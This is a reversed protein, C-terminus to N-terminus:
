FPEFICEHVVDLGCKCVTQLPLSIYSRTKKRREIIVVRAAGRPIMKECLWTSSRTSCARDMGQARTPVKTLLERDKGYYRMINAFVHANMDLVYMPLTYPSPQVKCLRQTRYGGGVLRRLLPVCVCAARGPPGSVASCVAYRCRRWWRARRVAGSCSALQAWWANRCSLLVLFCPLSTLLFVMCARSLLV